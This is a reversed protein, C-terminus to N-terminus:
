IGYKERVTAIEKSNASEKSKCWWLQNNPSRGYMKPLANKFHWRSGWTGLPINTPIFADEGVTDLNDCWQSLRVVEIMEVRYWLGDTHCYYQKGNVEFVKQPLTQRKKHRWKEARYELTRTEPHVYFGYSKMVPGYTRSVVEGDELQCNTDVPLWERLEHGEFTRHDAQSCLESYVDDWSRGVQRRLWRRMKHNSASTASFTGFKNAYHHIKRMGCPPTSENEDIVRIKKSGRPFRGKNIPTAELFKRKTKKPIM